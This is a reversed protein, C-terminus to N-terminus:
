RSSKTWFKNAYDEFSYGQSGKFVLIDVGRNSLESLICRFYEVGLFPFKKESVASSASYLKGDKNCMHTIPSLLFQYEPIFLKNEGDAVETIITFGNDEVINQQTKAIRDHLGELIVSYSLYPSNKGKARLILKEGQYLEYSILEGYPQFNIGMGKPHNHGYVSRIKLPKTFVYSCTDLETDLWSSSQEGLFDDILLKGNKSQLTETTFLGWFGKISVAFRLPVDHRSAFDIRNQLNGSSIKYKDEGTHKVELMIKFGDILEINFDPTYEETIHSLGEDYAEFHKLVGLSKMIAIFDYEKEKGVMRRAYENYDIGLQIALSKKDSESM